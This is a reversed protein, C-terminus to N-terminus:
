SRRWSSSALTAPPVSIMRVSLSWGNARIEGIGLGAAGAQDRADVAAGRRLLAQVVATYGLGAAGMLATLGGADRANPDAGEELLQEVVDLRGLLAASFLDRASNGGVIRLNPDALLVAITAPTADRWQTCTRRCCAM